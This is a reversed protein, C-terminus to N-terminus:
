GRAPPVQPAPAPAPAPAAQPAPAPAPQPAPTAESSCAALLALPAVVALMVAHRAYKHRAVLDSGIFM